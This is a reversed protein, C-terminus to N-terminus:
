RTPAAPPDVGAPSRRLREGRLRLVVLGVATTTTWFVLHSLTGLAVAEDKAVGFPRLALWCAVHYPGFFGPASPLAVALGVWVLLAYGAEVAGLPSLGLELARLAAYFPIWSAIGWLLLSHLVVWGIAAPGRLGGLGDALQSVLRQMGQALPEPALADTIRTVVRQVTRPALRLLVICALPLAVGGVGVALISASPDIGVARAGAAGVVVAFLALVCVADIVREVIVTGFVAASSAQVERALYWSRLIEGVRLPFVNNAMFGVSTARFLAGTPAQAVSGVLHRWRLARLWLMALYAPVSPLVLILLDARAMSRGIGVFSVGRLSLWVTALTVGM